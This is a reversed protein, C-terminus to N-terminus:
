RCISFKDIHISKNVSYVCWWFYILTDSVGIHNLQYKGEDWNLVPQEKRIYIAKLIGTKRWYNESNCANCFLYTVYLISFNIYDLSQQKHLWTSCWLGWESNNLIHYNRIQKIVIFFVKLLVIFLLKMINLKTRCINYGVVM